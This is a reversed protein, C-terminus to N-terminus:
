SSGVTMLGPRSSSAVAAAMASFWRLLCSESFTSSAARRRPRSGLFHSSLSEYVRARLASAAAWCASAATFTAASVVFALERRESRRHFLMPAALAVASAAAWCRAASAWFRAASASAAALASAAPSPAALVCIAAACSFGRLDAGVEVRLRRPVGLEGIVMIIQVQGVGVRLRLELLEGGRVEGGGSPSCAPWADSKDVFVDREGLFPGARLARRPRRRTSASSALRFISPPARRELLRVGLKRLGALVHLPAHRSQLSRVCLLRLELGGVTFM